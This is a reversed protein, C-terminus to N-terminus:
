GDSSSSPYWWIPRQFPCGTRSGLRVLRSSSVTQANAVIPPAFRHGFRAFRPRSPRRLAGAFATPHHRVCRSGAQASALGHIHQGFVATRDIGIAGPSSEALKRAL